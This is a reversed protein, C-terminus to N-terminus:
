YLVSGQINVCSILYAMKVTSLGVCECGLFQLVWGCYYTINRVYNVFNLLTSGSSHQHGLQILIFMVTLIDRVNLFSKLNWKNRFTACLYPIWEWAGMKGCRLFGPCKTMGSNGPIVNAMGVHFPFQPPLLINVLAANYMATCDTRSVLLISYNRLDHGSNDPLALPARVAVPCSVPQYPLLSCAAPWSVPTGPANISTVHSIRTLPRSQHPSM